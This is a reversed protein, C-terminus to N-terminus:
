REGRWIVFIDKVVGCFFINEDKMGNKIGVEHNERQM